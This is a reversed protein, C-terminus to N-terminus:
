GQHEAKILTAPYYALYHLVEDSIDWKFISTLVPDRFFSRVVHLNIESTYANFDMTDQDGRQGQLNAAKGSLEPDFDFAAFPIRHRHPHRNTTAHIELRALDYVLSFVTDERRAEQLVDFAFDIAASESAEAQLREGVRFFRAMSNRPYDEWQEWQYDDTQFYQIADRYATNTMAPLSLAESHLIMEGKLFEIIAREGTRDVILYHLQSTSQGIRLSPAQALVEQVSGCTDLFYQIWQLEGVVPRDDLAPYETQWLTTQEVVLGAENMGGNPFEKGNQSVTVSGYVSIWALPKEPPRILAAKQIGRQNTFLYVGEYIVDQNKCVYHEDMHRIHFATSM